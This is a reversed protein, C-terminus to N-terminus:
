APAEVRDGVRIEGGSLIDARLGGRHVLARLIGPRTLRELHACPECRRRGVCEVEGVWFRRGILADLDVGRTVVNRRAEQASVGLDDLAEAAVLTLALGTAHPASFTGAADAYRDGRLGRGAIATARDVLRMPATAAPALALAEVAGVSRAGRVPPAWAPLDTPAVVFGAVVDAFPAAPRLPSWILGPPVGFAVAAAEDGLLALWPGPWHFAQPDAVPVLGLGRGALWGRWVVWPQADPVPVDTPELDLMAALCAAVSRELPGAGSSPPLAVERM